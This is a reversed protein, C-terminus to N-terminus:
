VLVQLFLYEIRERQDAFCTMLLALSLIQVDSEWKEVTQDNLVEVTNSM